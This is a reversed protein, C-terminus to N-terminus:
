TQSLFSLTALVLEHKQGLTFSIQAIKRNYTTYLPLESGVNQSLRNTGDQLTLCDFFLLSQYTTRFCQLPVVMRDQMFDWFLASRLLTPIRSLYYYFIQHYNYFILFSLPIIRKGLNKPNKKVLQPVILKGLLFRCCLTLKSYLQLINYSYSRFSSNAIIHPVVYYIISHFVWQWHM